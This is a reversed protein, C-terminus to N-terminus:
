GVVSTINLKTLLSIQKEVTRIISNFDGKEAYLEIKEMKVELVM